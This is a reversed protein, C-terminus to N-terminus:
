ETIFYWSRLLKCHYFCTVKKGKEEVVEEAVTSEDLEDESSDM